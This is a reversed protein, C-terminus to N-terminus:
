RSGCILDTIDVICRSSVRTKDRFVVGEIELIKMKFQSGLKSYGGLQGSSYVVRHCPIVILDRNDKLCRAVVRPHIGLAKGISKYSTVRGTPILQALVYVATCVDNYDASKVTVDNDKIRVVIM